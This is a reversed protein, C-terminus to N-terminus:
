DACYYPDKDPYPWCGSFDCSVKMSGTMQWGCQYTTGGGPGGDGDACRIGDARVWSQSSPDYRGRTWVNPEIVKAPESVEFAFLRM